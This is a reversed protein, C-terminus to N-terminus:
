NEQEQQEQLKRREDDSDPELEDALTQPNPEPFEDNDEAEEQIDNPALPV